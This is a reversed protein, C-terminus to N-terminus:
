SAPSGAATALDPRGDATDDNCLDAIRHRVAEMEEETRDELAMLSNQAGQTVRILEDLKLQIAQTDRNQTHQLLFVMLFTVITTGTNIVLQWTDSYHFLPGTVGWVVVLLCAGVFAYPRGAQRATAHAIRSFLNTM